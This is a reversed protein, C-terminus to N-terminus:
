CISTVQDEIVTWVVAYAIAQAVAACPWVWLRRWRISLASVGLYAAIAVAAPVWSLMGTPACLPLVVWLGAGSLGLSVAVGFTVWLGLTAAIGAVACRRRPRGWVAPGNSAAIIPTALTSLAGFFPILLAAVNPALVTFISARSQPSAGVDPRKPTGGSTM